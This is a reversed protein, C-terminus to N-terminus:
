ALIEASKKKLDNEAAQVLKEIGLVAGDDFCIEFGLKQVESEVATMREQLAKPIQVKNAGTKPKETLVKLKM